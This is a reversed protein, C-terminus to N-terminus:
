ELWVQIKESLLARNNKIFDSIEETKIHIIDQGDAGSCFRNDATFLYVKNGDKALEKYEPTSGNLSVGGTKVQVYALHHDKDTKVLVCEYTEMDERTTNTYVYYGLEKQLYLCVVEEVDKPHILQFINDENSTTLDFGDDYYPLIGKEKKKNLIKISWKVLLHDDDSVKQLAARSAFSSIIKGPVNQASGVKIFGAVNAVLHMDYKNFNSDNQGHGSKYKWIPISSKIIKKNSDVIPCLYYIGNCRTWVLDGPRMEELRNICNTFGRGKRLQTARNYDANFDNAEDGSEEYLPWGGGIIKQNKCFEFLEEQSIEGSKVTGTKLTNRFIQPYEEM